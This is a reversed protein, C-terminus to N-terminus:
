NSVYKVANRFGDFMKEISGENKMTEFANRSLVEYQGKDGLLLDVKTKLNSVNGTKYLYGNLGEKLYGGEPGQYVDEIIVPVGHYFAQNIALGIAGPMVFVDAMKYYENVITQDYEVGLYVLKSGAIDKEDVGPGVLVVIQNDSLKEALKILHSLKRNNMNMRGICLLVQKQEFGYKEKLKEKTAQIQAFENFNLTNNAIFVSPRQKVVYQLQDEHYIVLANALRQRLYYIQNMLKQDRKQLNIGHSWLIIKKGALRSYVMFPFLFFYRLWVFQIIVEPRYKKLAKVFGSFSYLWALMNDDEIRKKNLNGDYLVILEYGMKKFEEAFFRYVGQRYPQLDQDFLLIRKM